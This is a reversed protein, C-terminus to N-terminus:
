AGSVEGAAIESCGRELATFAELRTPVSISSGIRAVSIGGCVNGL